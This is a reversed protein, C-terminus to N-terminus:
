NCTFPIDIIRVRERFLYHIKKGRNDYQAQDISKFHLDLCIMKSTSWSTMDVKIYRTTKYLHVLSRPYM